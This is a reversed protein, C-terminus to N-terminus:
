NHQGTTLNSKSATTSSDSAEAQDECESSWTSSSSSSSGNIQENNMINVYHASTGQEVHM